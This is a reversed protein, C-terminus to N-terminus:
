SFLSFSFLISFHTQQVSSIYNWNFLRAIKNKTCSLTTFISYKKERSQPLSYLHLFDETGKRQWPISGSQLSFIKQGKERGHYLVLGYLSNKQWPISGSQISFIKQGKEKGHYLVLSYLSLRRDRKEAMTYFWVTYLFDETGKRQWPTLGCQVSFIKDKKKSM